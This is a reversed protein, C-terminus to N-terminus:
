DILIVEVEEGKKLSLVGEPVVMYANAESLSTLMHSDQKKLPICHYRGDKFYVVARAFERRDASKRAYDEDLVASRKEREPNRFGMMARIAPYVLLDFAVASSVPNGPLGFFLKGDAFTGFLVPKAPKIRLKHFKVDVNLEKVLEKVYDKEGMSVGGTTIFIDYRHANKLAEKLTNPDDPLIGLNYPIGGARKVLGHLMYNNSTRIQSPKTRPECVDLIEDGTSLIGVNPRRRVSVLPVNLSSLIGMEYGRIPTGKKLVLQGERMDEGRKRVNAGKKFSKKVIVEGNKEETYEVPIVTDAGKPLPAGTFIKIATGPLLTIDEGTGATYEGILKLRAPVQKVDEWRVAYGDMASNDFLPKDTDARIDEALVMGLAEHIFVRQTELPKASSLVARLAEELPTM